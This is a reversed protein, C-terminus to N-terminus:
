RHRGTKAGGGRAREKTVGEGGEGGEARVFMTYIHANFFVSSFIKGSEHLPFHQSPTLNGATLLSNFLWVQFDTSFSAFITFFDDIGTTSPDEGYFVAVQRFEQRM